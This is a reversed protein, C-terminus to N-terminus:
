QAAELKKRKKPKRLLAVQDRFFNGVSERLTVLPAFFPSDDGALFPARLRLLGQALFLALAGLAAGAVADITYHQLLYVTGMINYFQWAAAAIGLLPHVLFAVVVVIMGAAVHFSPNSSVALWDQDEAQWFDRLFAISASWGNAPERRVRERLAEGSQLIDPSAAVSPYVSLELPSVAPVLLWGGMGVAMAIFFSLLFLRFLYVSTYAAGLVVLTLVTLWQEYALRALAGPLGAMGEVLRAYFGNGFVAADWRWYLESFRAVAEPESAAFLAVIAAGTALAAFLYPLLMLLARRGEAQPVAAAGGQALPVARAFRSGNRKQLLSFVARGAARIFFFISLFFFPALLYQTLFFQVTGRLSLFGAVADGGFLFFAALTVLAPFLLVYWEIPLRIRPKM